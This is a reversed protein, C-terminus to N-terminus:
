NGNKTAFNVEIKVYDIEAKVPMGYGFRDANAATVRAVISRSTLESTSIGLYPAISIDVPVNAGNGDASLEFLEGRDDKFYAFHQRLAALVRLSVPRVLFSRSGVSHWESRESAQRASTGILM